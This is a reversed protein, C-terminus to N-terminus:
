LHLANPGTRNPNIDIGGCWATLREGTWVVWAEPHNAGLQVTRDPVPIGLSAASHHLVRSDHIAAGGPLGNIFAVAGTNNGPLPRWEGVLPIHIM